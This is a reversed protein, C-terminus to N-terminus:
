WQPIMPVWDPRRPDGSYPYPGERRYAEAYTALRDEDLTVGLGPGTPVRIAGGEYRMLGGQIIDDTLHHYHADAGCTLNPIAAAAHLMAALAIGLEGSSHMSLGVQMAECLTGLRRLAHLGGWFHVDMLIVDVSGMALAPAVQDFNVVVTNTAIPVPSKKRLTAMGALGYCPDELYEVNMGAIAQAVGLATEATWVSNPDLRLKSRPFRRHLALLAEVEEEPRFVGGKLKLTEFGFREVLEEAHRVMSDPSDVAPSSDSEYRYFMYAAFPVQERVRGGLLDSVPRGCVKGQIDLCAMEIAAYIQNMPYYLSQVPNNIKWRIRELRFPDEGILTPAVAAFQPEESAGSGGVEGLGVLGEDTHLKLITRVFRNPHVGQAHRLPAEIPVSVPIAEVRTIRL